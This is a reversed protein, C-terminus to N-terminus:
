HCQCRRFALFQRRKASIQSQFLLKVFQWIEKWCIKESMNLAMQFCCKPWIQLWIFHKAKQAHKLILFEQSPCPIAPKPPRSAPTLSSSTKHHESAVLVAHITSKARRAANGVGDFSQLVDKLPRLVVTFCREFSCFLEVAEPFTTSIPNHVCVKCHDM